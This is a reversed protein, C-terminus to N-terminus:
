DDSVQFMGLRGRMPRFKLPKADALVFGIPGFFYPDDSERVVDTITAEGVIGGRELRQPIPMQAKDGHVQHFLAKAQMYEAYTMGKAAHVLIHGRWHTNWTRNEVHKYGNVILWAWPQRISIALAIM